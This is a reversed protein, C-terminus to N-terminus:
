NDIFWDGRAFDRKQEAEKILRFPDVSKQGSAAQTTAVGGTMPAAAVIGEALQRRIAAIDRRLESNGEKVEMIREYQRDFQIMAVVVVVILVGVLTFLFFDKIGFRNQM